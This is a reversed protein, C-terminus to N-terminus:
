QNKYNLQFNKLHLVNNDIIKDVNPLKYTQELYIGLIIGSSFIAIDFFNM